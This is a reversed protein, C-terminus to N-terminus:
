FVRENKRTKQYSNFTHRTELLIRAFVDCIFSFPVDKHFLDGMSCVFIRRPKKWKLPQDLRDPHSTVKFPKDEIVTDERLRNAMRKAYCNQCGESVPSCGTVPNWIEEAWEIKTPLKVM